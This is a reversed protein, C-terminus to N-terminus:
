TVLQHKPSACRALKSFKGMMERRVRYRQCNGQSTWRKRTSSGPTDKNHSDEITQWTKPCRWLMLSVGFALLQTPVEYSFTLTTIATTCGGSVPFHFPMRIRCRLFRTCGTAAVARAGAPMLNSMGPIMQMLQSM